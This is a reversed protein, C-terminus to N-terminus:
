VSMVDKDTMLRNLENKLEQIEKKTENLERSLGAMRKCVRTSGTELEM